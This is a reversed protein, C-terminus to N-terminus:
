LGLRELVKDVAPGIATDFFEKFPKGDDGMLEQLDGTPVIAGNVARGFVQRTRPDVLKGGLKVMLCGASGKPHPGPCGTHFYTTSILGIEIVADVSALDSAKLPLTSPAENWWVWDDGFWDRHELLPPVPPVVVADRGSLTLRNAIRQAFTATPQWPGTRSLMDDVYAEWQAPPGLSLLGGFGLLYLPHPKVPVVLVRRMAQITAEPPKMPQAVCGTLLAAGLLLFACTWALTIWRAMTLWCLHLFHRTM